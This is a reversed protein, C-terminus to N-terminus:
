QFNKVAEKLRQELKLREGSYLKDGLKVIAEAESGGIAEDGNFVANGAKSLVGFSICKRLFAREALTKSEVVKLFPSYLEGKSDEKLPLESKKKLLIELEEDTSSPLIIETADKIVELINLIKERNTATDSILKFYEMGAKKKIQHTKSEVEREEAEDVIYYDYQDKDELQEKTSAVKPDNISFQYIVYDDFNTPYDIEVFEGANLMSAVRRKTTTIDLVTGMEKPTFSYNNWYDSALIPFEKSGYAANLMRPLVLAELEDSIPKFVSKSNRAFYPGLQWETEGRLDPPLVQWGKKRKLYIVATRKQTAGVGSSAVTKETQIDTIDSM